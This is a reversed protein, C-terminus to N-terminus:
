VDRSLPCKLNLVDICIISRAEACCPRPVLAATTYHLHKCIFGTITSSIEVLLFQLIVMVIRPGAGRRRGASTGAVAVLLVFYVVSINSSKDVSNWCYCADIIKSVDVSRSVDTLRDCINYLPLCDFYYKIRVCLFILLFMRINNNVNISVTFPVWSKSIISHNKPVKLREARLDINNITNWIYM